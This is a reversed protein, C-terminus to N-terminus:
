KQEFRRHHPVEIKSRIQQLKCMTIILTEVPTYNLWNSLEAITFVEDQPLAVATNKFIM